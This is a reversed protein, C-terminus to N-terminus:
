FILCFTSRSIIDEWPMVYPPVFCNDCSARLWGESPADGRECRGNFGLFVPVRPHCRHAPFASMNSAKGLPSTQGGPGAQGPSEPEGTGKPSLVSLPLQLCRHENNSLHKSSFTKIRQSHPQSHTTTKKKKKKKKKKAEELM